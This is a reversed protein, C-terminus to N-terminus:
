SFCPPRGIEVGFFTPSRVTLFCDTHLGRFRRIALHSCILFQDLDPLKELMKQGAKSQYFNIFNDIDEASFHKDYIEVMDVNVMRRANEKASELGIKMIRAYKDSYQLGSKTFSTDKFVNAMQTTMSASMAEFTKNILSDQHMLSFLSKIKEKKTVTQAQGQFSICCFLILAFFIKKMELNELNYIM